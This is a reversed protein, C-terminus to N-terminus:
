SVRSTIRKAALARTEGQKIEDFPFWYGRGLNQEVLLLADVEKDIIVCVVLKM